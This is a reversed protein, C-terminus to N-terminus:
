VIKTFGNVKELMLVSRVHEELNAKHSVIFINTNDQAIDNVIELAAQTGAADLNADLVEDLILLNTHVSGKIKAVNRWSFALALDVRSREGASLNNYTFENTYRTRISENFNEDMSFTLSINLKSLYSNVQACLLPIYQKIIDAKIGTDKLLELIVNAIELENQKEEFEDKLKNKRAKLDELEHTVDGANLSSKEKIKSIHTATEKSQALLMNKQQTLSSLEARFDSIRTKIESEQDKYEKVVDNIQLLKGAEENIDQQIIDNKATTDKIIEDTLEDTISQKCHICNDHKKVYEVSKNNESIRNKYVSIDNEIVAKDHTAARLRELVKNLETELPPGQEKLSTIKKTISEINEINRALTQQHILLEDDSSSKIYKIFKEKETIKANTLDLEKSIELIKDKLVSIETKHLKNMESFMKLDLMNEVFDRRQGAPLTMFPTYNMTSMICARTFTSFDFGLIQTEIYAQADRAAADEHLKNGNRTIELINPKMGRTIEYETSGKNFTISVVAGGQNISNILSAKKIDRFSKGFLAFTIGDMISSKGNGNKGSVMTTPAKNLIFTNANDGHSLFNKMTLKTFEIM